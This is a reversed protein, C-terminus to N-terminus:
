WYVPAYHWCYAAAPCYQPCGDPPAEPVFDGARAGQVAEWAMQVGHKLATQPGRDGDLSFTALRLQSPEAHRVHFYFGEAISGLNLAEQAALAYLPLQLKKGQRLAYSTFAYPSSTKYDVIRVRGDDTRDVRDIFGRLKFYDGDPRSVALPPGSGQSIGFSQESRYFGFSPDLNEIVEISRRLNELITKRTEEWWATARFGEVRPADELIEGAVEPLKELLAPLEPDVGVQRYLEELVRHYLNGLQRADLGERPPETVELNLVSTTYFFYPCTRYAELRSASWIRDPQFREYFIRESGTL